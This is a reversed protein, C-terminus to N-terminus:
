LVHGPPPLDTCGLDAIEWAVQEGRVSYRLSMGPISVNDRKRRLAKVLVALCYCDRPGGGALTHGRPTNSLKPPQLPPPPPAKTSGFGAGKGDPGTWARLCVFSVLRM